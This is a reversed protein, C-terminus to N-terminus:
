CHRFAWLQEPLHGSSGAAVSSGFLQIAVTRQDSLWVLPPEFIRRIAFIKRDHAGQDSPDQGESFKTSCVLVMRCFTLSRIFIPIYM